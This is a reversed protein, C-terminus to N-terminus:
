SLEAQSTQATASDTEPEDEPIFNKTIKLALWNPLLRLTKMILSMQWPFVVEFKKSMLGKYFADAAADPEMIFPMDFDNKDTLPTKVFGPSILQLKVNYLDFEPKLAETMNILGAKTMGYAASTPLGRYGAVSAVVAIHGTRRRIMRSSMATMCNVTGLLNINVLKQFDSNKLEDARVPQHTGANFVALDIAGHEAEISAIVSSVGEEDTIDCPAAFLNKHTAAIVTLEGESRASIVVRWGNNAMKEALTKGLGSSAGTIWALKGRGTM